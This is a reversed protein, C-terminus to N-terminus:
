EAVKIEIDKIDAKSMVVDKIQRVQQDSLEGEHKVVV